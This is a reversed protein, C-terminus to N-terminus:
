SISGREAQRSQASNPGTSGDMSRDLSHQLKKLRNYMLESSVFLEFKLPSDSSDIYLYNDLGDHWVFFSRSVLMRLFSYRPQGEFNTIDMKIITPNIESIEKATMKLSTSNDKSITLVGITEYKKFVSLALGISAAGLVFSLTVYNSKIGFTEFATVELFITLFSLVFLLAFFYVATKVWKRKNVIQIDM